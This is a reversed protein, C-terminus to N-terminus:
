GGPPAQRCPTTCGPNQRSRQPEGVPHPPGYRPPTTLSTPRPRKYLTGGAEDLEFEDEQLSTAAQQQDMRGHPRRNNFRPGRQTRWTLDSATDRRGVDGVRDRTHQNNAPGQGRSRGRAGRGGRQYAERQHGEDEPYQFGDRSRIVGNGTVRYHSPDRNEEMIKLITKFNLESVRETHTKSSRIWLNPQIDTLQAKSRLVEIKKTTSEMECKILGPQNGRPQLRKVNVIKGDAGIKTLMEEIQEKDTLNSQPKLGTIVLTREPDYEPSELCKIRDSLQDIEKGFNSKMEALTRNTDDQKKSMAIQGENLAVLLQRISVEDDGGDQNGRNDGTKLYKGKVM